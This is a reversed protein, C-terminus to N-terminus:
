PLTLGQPSPVLIYIFLLFSLGEFVNVQAIQKYIMPHPLVFFVRLCALSFVNVCLVHEGTHCDQSVPIRFSVLKSKQTCIVITDDM